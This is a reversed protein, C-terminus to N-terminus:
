PFERAPTGGDGHGVDVVHCRLGHGVLDAPVAPRHVEEVDACQLVLPEVDVDEDVVCAHLGDVRDHLELGLAKPRHKREHHLHWEQTVLL